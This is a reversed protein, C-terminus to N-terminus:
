STARSAWRCSPRRDRIRPARRLRASRARARRRRSLAARAADRARRAVENRLYDDLSVGDPTPFAPLQNKGLEITLNCRKAIEVTNALAEPLDAFLAAMEAQTKFYQERRSASRGARIPWCTAKPSACARRTRASTTRTAPVADSADRRGAAGLARRARRDGARVLADTAGTDPASCKSTFASPFCGRGHARSRKPRRPTARRRAGHGVDGDRAGSLAICATPRRRRVM